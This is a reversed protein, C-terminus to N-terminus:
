RVDSERGLKSLNEVIRLSLHRLQALEEETFGETIPQRKAFVTERLSEIRERGSPTLRALISRRDRPDPVREVLGARELNDVLGTVNRPSVGMFEALEGLPLGEEPGRRLRFLLQLRGESLGQPELWREMALHMAKAARQVASLAEISALEGGAQTFFARARPDYLCGRSDREFPIAHATSNPHDKM